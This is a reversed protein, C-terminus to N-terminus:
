ERAITVQITLADEGHVRTNKKLVATSLNSPTYPDGIFIESNFIENEEELNYVSIKNGTM